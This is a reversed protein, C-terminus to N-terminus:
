KKLIGDKILQHAHDVITEQVPRYEVGLEETSRTNNFKLPIGINKKVYSWTLGAMIPGLIYFLFKPLVRSGIKYKKGFEKSLINSMELMTLSQNCCIFRGKVDQNELALIHAGAVDRVDVVGFYLDPMGMAMKGNLLNLMFDVSTSDTRKTLAPGLIFGPNISALSWKSTLSLALAEKEAVTKSYNYPQHSISSTANWNKESFTDGEIMEVDIADGYVAVISSTQIVREIDGKSAANLVNRTGIVAPDVLEKKPNKIGEIKFPSAAHILAKAGKMVEDYSGEELLDAEYIHLKGPYKDLLEKILPDQQTRQLNRTTIRVEYEKALLQTLIHSGLYGTAGTLVIPSLIM